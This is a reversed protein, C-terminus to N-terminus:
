FDQDTPTFTTEHHWSTQDFWVQTHLSRRQLGSLFDDRGGGCLLDNDMLLNM